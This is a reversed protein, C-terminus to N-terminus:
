NCFTAMGNQSGANQLANIVFLKAIVVNIDPIFPHRVRRTQLDFAAVALSVSIDALIPYHVSSIILCALDWESIKTVHLIESNSREQWEQSFHRCYSFTWRFPMRGSFVRSKM